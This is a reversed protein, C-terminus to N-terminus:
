TCPVFELIAILTYNHTYLTYNLYDITRTILPLTYPPSSTPATQKSTPEWETLAPKAPSSAGFTLAMLSWYFRHSYYFCCYSIMLCFKITKMYTSSLKYLNLAIVFIKM